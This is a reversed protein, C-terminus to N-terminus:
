TNTALYRLTGNNKTLRDATDYSDIPINFQDYTAMLTFVWGRDMTQNSGTYSGWNATTTPCKEYTLQYDFTFDMLPNGFVDSVPLTITGLQTVMKDGARFGTFRNVNVLKVAGKEFVGFQEAGWKSTVSPDFYFTPMPNIRADIGSQNFSTNNKQLYFANVLGSGVIYANEIKIENLMIDSHLQTMGTALNNTTAAQPFNVTRATTVGNVQNYGFASAQSTLLTNNIDAFLGNAAELIADYFDSMFATGPKGINVTSTAEKEYRALDADDIMIAYKNFKSANVTAETYQPRADIRCDDTTVSKGAPVRTRYKVKLDRYTGDGNSIGQSLLQPQGNALLSSLYGPPTIKKSPAADGFVLRSQKLLALVFGSAM